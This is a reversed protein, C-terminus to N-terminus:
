DESTDAEEGTQQEADNADSQEEMIYIRIIYLTIEDASMMKYSDSCVYGKEKETMQEMLASPRDLVYPKADTDLVLVLAEADEAGISEILEGLTMM